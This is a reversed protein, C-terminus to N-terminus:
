FNGLLCKKCLNQATNEPLETPDHFQIKKELSVRKKEGLSFATFCDKGGNLDGGYTAKDKIGPWYRVRPPGYSYHSILRPGQQYLAFM